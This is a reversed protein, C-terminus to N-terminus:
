PGLLSGLEITCPTIPRILVATRAANLQDVDASFPQGQESLRDSKCGSLVLLGLLGAIWYIITRQVRPFPSVANYRRPEESM